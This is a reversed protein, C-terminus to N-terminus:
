DLKQAFIELDAYVLLGLTFSTAPSCFCIEAGFCADGFPVLVNISVSCDAVFSFLSMVALWGELTSRLM